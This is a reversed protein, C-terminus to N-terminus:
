RKTQIFKQRATEFAEAAEDLRKEMKRAERTALGDDLDSNREARHKALVWENSAQLWRQFAKNSKEQLRRHRKQGHDFKSTNDSVLKM